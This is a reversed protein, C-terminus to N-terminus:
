KFIKDIDQMMEKSDRQFYVNWPYPNEAKHPNQEMVWTLDNIFGEEDGIVTYLYKARGWRNVLYNPGVDIAKQFYEAAKEKSGGFKEPVAVYYIGKSFYNGGGAWDPDLTDIREIMINNHIILKTNFIRGFASLCDKFYYFIATYWYGMADVENITLKDVAEWVEAGKDVAQRFAKNTYMARECFKFCEMYNKKKERKKDSYASGMLLYYNGTKWLAYYNDPDIEAATRYLNILKELKEKSDAKKELARAQQLFDKASEATKEQTVTQWGQKWSVCSSLFILMILSIIVNRILLNTPKM